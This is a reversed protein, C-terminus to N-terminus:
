AQGPIRDRNRYGGGAHMAIDFFVGLGLWFWDWGIVGGPAIIVYM